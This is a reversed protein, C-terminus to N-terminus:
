VKMKKTMEEISDEDAVSFELNLKRGYLHTHNLSHFASKAEETSVFEVFAFGRHQGNIKKPMRVSKVEGFTKFLERIEKPTAEFAVNRVMIKPTAEAEVKSLSRKAKNANKPKPDERVPNSISLQIAHGDIIKHQLKKLAKMANEPLEFEIFGYGSSLKNPKKVIKITFKGLREKEFVEKVTDETTEFNLNKVFLTRSKAEQIEEMEQNAQRQKEQVLGIPAWELYLPEDKLEYYALNQFANAAHEADTFEIVAIAKTPPLHVKYVSGYRNFLEYLLEITATYPLNKALMVTSSRECTKRDCDFADLNLGNTQLWEKTENIIQTEALAVKVASNEGEQGLIDSKKINLRDAMEALITNPNLFLTNWNTDDDLRKLLDAKRRKKFSSKEKETRELKEADAKRVDEETQYLLKKPAYAPKIHLIRGLVVKNDLEAFASIAAEETLFTVYGYGKRRGNDDKPLKTEVIQGYKEFIGQFEDETISYPLNLVFLRKEDAPLSTLVPKKNPDEKVEEKKENLIATEAEALGEKNKGKKKDTKVEEDPDALKVHIRKAAMGAKTRTTDIETVTFVESGVQKVSKAGTLKGKVEQEPEEEEM